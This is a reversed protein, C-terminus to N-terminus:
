SIKIMEWFYEIFMKMSILIKLYEKSDSNFDSRSDSKFIIILSKLLINMLNTWVILFDWM